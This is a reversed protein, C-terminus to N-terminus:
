RGRGVGGPGGVKAADAEAREVAAGGSTSGPLKVYRLPPDCITM